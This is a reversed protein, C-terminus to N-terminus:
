YDMTSGSKIGPKSVLAATPVSHRDEYGDWVWLFDQTYGWLIGMGVSGWFGVYRIGAGQRKV